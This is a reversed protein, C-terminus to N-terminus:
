LFIKLIGICLGLVFSITNSYFCKVTLVFSTYFYYKAVLHGLILTMQSVVFYQFQFSLDWEYISM